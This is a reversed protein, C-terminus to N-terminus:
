QLRMFGNVKRDSAGVTHLFGIKERGLKSEMCGSRDLMGVLGEQTQLNHSDAGNSLNSCFILSFCNNTPKHSIRLVATICVSVQACKNMICM